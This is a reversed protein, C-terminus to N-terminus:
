RSNLVLGELIINKENKSLKAFKISGRSSLYQSLTAGTFAGILITGTQNNRSDNSRAVQNLLGGFLGGILSGSILRYNINKNFRTINKIDNVAFSQSEGLITTHLSDNVLENLQECSLSTGNYLSIKWIENASLTPVIMLSSVFIVFIITIKKM